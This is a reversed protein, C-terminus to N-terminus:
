RQQTALINGTLPDIIQYTNTDTGNTLMVDSFPSLQLYSIYGRDYSALEQFSSTDWVRIQEDYGITVLRDSQWDFRLYEGGAIGEIRATRVNWIVIGQPNSSSYALLDPNSASFKLDFDFIFDPTPSVLYQNTDFDYILIDEDANYAFLRGTSNWAFRDWLGTNSPPFEFILKGTLDYLDINMGTQTSFTSIALRDSHQSWVIPPTFDLPSVEFLLRGMEVDWVSLHTSGSYRYGPYTRVDGNYLTVRAVYRLDPSWRNIQQLIEDSYAAAPIDFTRISNLSIDYLTAEVGDTLGLVNPDTSSWSAVTFTSQAKSSPTSVLYVFIALILTLSKRM